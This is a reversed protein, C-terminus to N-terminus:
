RFKGVGRLVDGFKLEEIVPQLLNVGFAKGYRGFTMSDDKHGLIAAVREYPTGKQKLTDAVTHRFSHFTKEKDKVGVNKRFRGFWRSADTSYGDRRKILEPFLLTEGKARLRDAYKLLGLDILKSHIPVFRKSSPTKLKKDLKDNIDFIWIGKEDRIDELHLQCIEDIRAGTHLGLLPLWYYYPHTYIKKTFIKDQFILKLDEKSMVSRQEDASRKERLTLGAFYNEQVYGHKKAWDFLSSMRTLNKNLTYVAMTEEPEMAVVEEISKDKYLVKKNMNPPLKQLTQKYHRATDYGIENLRVEGVIRVFLDFSAKVEQETKGKWAGEVKKENCYADFVDVLPTSSFPVPRAKPTSDPVDGLADVMGKFTEIEEKAKDPDSKVGEFEIRGDPHRVMRDVHLDMRNYKKEAM